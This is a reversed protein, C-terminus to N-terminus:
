SGECGRRFTRLEPDYQYWCILQDVPMTAISDPEFGSPRHCHQCQGGDMAQECLRLVARLPEMASATEYGEGGSKAPWKGVAFWVTPEEDDSYRIQLQKIGTRGLMDAAATIMAKYDAHDGDPPGLEEAEPTM